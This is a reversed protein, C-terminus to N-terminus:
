DNGSNRNRWRKRDRLSNRWADYEDQPLAAIADYELKGAGSETMVRNVLDTQSMPDAGTVHAPDDRRMLKETGKVVRAHHLEGGKSKWENEVQAIRHFV